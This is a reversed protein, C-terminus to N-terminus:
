LTIVGSVHSISNYVAIVEDSSNLIKKSTISTYKGNKSPKEVISHDSLLDMVLTKQETKTIFKFSYYDPWTIQEDLLAKFKNTDM